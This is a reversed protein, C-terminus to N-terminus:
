CGIHIICYVYIYVLILTYTFYMYVVWIDVTNLKIHKSGDNLFIPQGVM